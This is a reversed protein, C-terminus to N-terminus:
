SSCMAQWFQRNKRTHLQLGTILVTSRTHEPGAQALARKVNPLEDADDDADEDDTAAAAHSEHHALALRDSDGLRCLWLSLDLNAARM